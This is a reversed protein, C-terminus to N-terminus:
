APDGPIPAARPGPAGAGPDAFDRRQCFLAVNVPGILVPVEVLPGVAAVVGARRLYAPHRSVPTQPLGMAGHLHCVCAERGDALLNLLRLRVPDAPAKLLRTSRDLAEPIGTAPSKM